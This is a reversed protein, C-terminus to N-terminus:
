DGPGHLLRSIRRAISYSVSSVPVVFEYRPVPTVEFREKLKYFPHGPKSSGLMPYPGLNIYRFGRDHAWNIAKWDILTVVSHINREPAHKIWMLHVCSKPGPPDFLMLFGGLATGNSDTILALRVQDGMIARIRSVSEARFVRGKYVKWDPRALALYDREDDAFEFRTGQDYYKVAQRDHKKFGNTWIHEPTTKQLDLIFFGHKAAHQFGLAVMEDIVEQRHTRIVMAAVPNLLSFKVSKPLAALIEPKDTALSGIIPGASFTDPLSDLYQLRRGARYFFPCVALIRGEGDRCVLYFPKLQNDELVKRWSWSHFVSGGNETVFDDWEGGDQTESWAVTDRQGLEDNQLPIQAPAALM